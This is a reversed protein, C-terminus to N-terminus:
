LHGGVVREIGALDHRLDSEKFGVEDMRALAAQAQGEGVEMLLWGGELLSGPAADIIANICEDGAPGAVLAQRPEHRLEPPADAYQSESLYPPNAVIADVRHEDLGAFGESEMFHVGAGAAEANAEAVVLAASSADGAVVRLDRRETALAIAVAGSGTGWDFVRARDPLVEVAWEVLTETEPRPVLVDANVSLDLRRFARRGIIHAVPERNARRKIPERLLAREKVSLPRESDTYLTIRDVGLVHSLLLEADLRASEV